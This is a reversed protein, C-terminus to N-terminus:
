ISVEAIQKGHLALHHRRCLWTVDLPKSYDSHHAQVDITTGCEVCPLRILRGTKIANSVACRAKVKIPDVKKRSRAICAKGAPSRKYEAQAARFTPSEHYKKFMAKAQRLLREKGASTCAYKKANKANRAKGAPTRAYKKAKQAKRAETAKGAPTQRYKKQSIKYAANISPIENRKNQYKRHCVKCAAAKGYKGAALSYFEELAKTENCKTCTKTNM